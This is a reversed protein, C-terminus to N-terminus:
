KHPMNLFIKKREYFNIEKLHKGWYKNILKNMLGTIKAKFLAKELLFRHKSASKSLYFHFDRNYVLALNKEIDLYPYLQSEQIIENAGRPFYDIGRKKSALMKYAKRWDGNILKYNLKNTKWVDIDYWNEGFAAFKQLKRFQKLNVVKNYYKQHNRPILLIRHGILNKTLDVNVPTFKQDKEKSQLFWNISIKDKELLKLLTKQPYSKYPILTLKYNYNSLSKTLLEHYYLHSNNNHIPIILTINKASSNTTFIFLIIVFVIVKIM